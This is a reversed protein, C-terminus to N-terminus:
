TMSRRWASCAAILSPSPLWRTLWSATFSTATCLPPTARTTRTLTKMWPSFTPGYLASPMMTAVGVPEVAYLRLAPPGITTGPTSAIM